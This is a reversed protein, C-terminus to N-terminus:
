IVWWAVADSILTISDGANLTQYVEGEIEVLPEASNPKLTVIGTGINKIEYVRDKGKTVTPMFLTFTGSALIIDSHTTITGTATFVKVNNGTSITDAIVAGDTTLASQYQGTFNGALDLLPITDDYSYPGMGGLYYHKVTM